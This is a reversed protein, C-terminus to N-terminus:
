ARFYDNLEAVRRRTTEPYSALKPARCRAEGEAARSTLRDGVVSPAGSPNSSRPLGRPAPCAGGATRTSEEWLHAVPADSGDAATAPVGRGGSPESAETPGEGRRDALGQM